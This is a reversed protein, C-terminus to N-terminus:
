RARESKLCCSYYDLDGKRLAEESKKRKTDLKMLEKDSLVRGRGLKCDLVADQVRENDKCVSHCKSKTKVEALRWDQLVRAKKDVLTEVSKRSKHQGDAFSKLPKVLDETMLTAVTKHTDATSAMDEAIFHWANSVTGSTLDNSAKFLRTALKQLGKAYTAELEARDALTSVLEKNFEGGAKIFARLDDFGEHGTYNSPDNGNVMSNIRHLALTSKRFNPLNSVTLKTTM